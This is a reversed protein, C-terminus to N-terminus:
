LIAMVMKELHKYQKCVKSHYCYRYTHNTNIVSRKLQSVVFLDLVYQQRCMQREYSRTTIPMALEYELSEYWWKRAPVTESQSRAAPM